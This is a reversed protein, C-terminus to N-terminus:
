FLFFEFSAGYSAAMRSESYFKSRVRAQTCILQYGIPDAIFKLLKEALDLPNGNEILAGSEGDVIVESPGGLKTAIVLKGSAMGEVVVKGFPEPKISPVILFHIPQIIQLIDTVEGLFFVYDELEFERVLKQCHLLYNNDSFGSGLFSLHFKVNKDKLIRASEIAIHQGKWYNFRGICLIEVSAERHIEVVPMNLYNEIKAGSYIVQGEIGYCNQVYKSAFIIKSFSKRAIITFLWKEVGRNAIEHISLQRSEKPVLYGILISALTFCHVFPQSNEERLQKRLKLINRLGSFLFNLSQPGHFYRRRLIPLDKQIYQVNNLNPFLELNREIDKPFWIELERLPNNSIHNIIGLLTRASGYQDLTPTVIIIKQLGHIGSNLKYFEGFVM